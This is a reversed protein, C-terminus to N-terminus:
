VPAGNLSDFRSDPGDAAPLLCYTNGNMSEGGFGKSAKGSGILWGDRCSRGRVEMRRSTTIVVRRGVDPKGNRM